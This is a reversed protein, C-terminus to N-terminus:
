KGKPQIPNKVEYTPHVLLIEHKIIEKGFKPHWEVEEKVFNDSTGDDFFPGFLKKYIEGDDKKFTVLVAFVKDNPDPVIDLVRVMM